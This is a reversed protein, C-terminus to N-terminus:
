GAHRQGNDADVVSDVYASGSGMASRTLHEIHQTASRLGRLTVVTATTLSVAYGLVLAFALAAVHVFIRAPWQGDIVLGSLEAMLFGILAGTLGARIVTGLSKRVDRFGAQFLSDLM